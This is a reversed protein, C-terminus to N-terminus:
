KSRRERLRCVEDALIVTDWDSAKVQIIRPLEAESKRAARIAMNVTRKRSSPRKNLKTPIM